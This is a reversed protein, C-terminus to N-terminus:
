CSWSDSFLLSLAKPLRPRPIRTFVKTLSQSLRRSVSSHPERPAVMPQAENRNTVLSETLCQLLFGGGGHELLKEEAWWGQEGDEARLESRRGEEEGAGSTNASAFRHSHIKIAAVPVHLGASVCRPMHGLLPSAPPPPPPPPPSPSVLHKERSSDASGARMPGRALELWTENLTPNQEFRM